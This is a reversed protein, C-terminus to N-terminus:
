DLIAQSPSPSINRLIFRLSFIASKMSLINDSSEPLKEDCNIECIKPIKDFSSSTPQCISKFYQLLRFHSITIFLKINLITMCKDALQVSVMM